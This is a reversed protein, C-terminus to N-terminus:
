ATVSVARRRARMATGLGGFGVLMLAWTAPEPVALSVDDIYTFAPDNYATFVLSDSGTGVVSASVHQFAVGTNTDTQAFVSNGNWTVDFGNPTGGDQWYWFSLTYSQGM